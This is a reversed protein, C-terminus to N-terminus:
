DSRTLSSTANSVSNLFNDAVVLLAELLQNPDNAREYLTGSVCGKSQILSQVTWMDLEDM